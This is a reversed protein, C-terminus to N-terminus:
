GGQRGPELVARDSLHYLAVDTVGAEVLLVGATM